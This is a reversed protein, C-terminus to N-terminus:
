GYLRVKLARSALVIIISTLVVQLMAMAAVPGSTGQVWLSLMTTGMIETGPSILFVAAAYEKLFLVVLLVYCSLIAPLAVPVVIRRIIRRWGAGAVTAARDFDPTIQMLAPAVVGYGSALHRVTFALFLILLSDRIDVIGPVFLAAYFIGMSVLIGPMARPIQAVADLIKRQRFNSRQSVMAVATVILTAAAAGVTALLLSNTISRVYIGREFLMTYNELTLVSTIPIFPSLFSVVSRLFVGGIIVGITLMLYLAVAGFAPWRLAGLRMPAIAGTRTGMSTFRFTQRLLYNQIMVLVAVLAMLVVAAAAILGYDPPSSEFGQDYIFTTLIQINVPSGLILPIALMEFSALVNMMLSYVIAPRMMPLTIRLLIRRTDIGASRAAAELAPDQQRAATLCYLITNPAIAVGSIISIGILSYLEWPKGGVLGSVFNTVFGNPGYAIIAGFAIVLPSIFIPWLAVNALAARFPVDTRGIILALVVGVVQSFAIAIACLLVTDLVIDGVNPFTFLRHFNGLTLQLGNEYLPKDIVSQLILPVAAIAVLVICVVAVLGQLGAGDFLAFRPSRVPETKSPGPERATHAINAM